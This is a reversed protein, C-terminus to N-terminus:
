VCVFQDRLVSVMSGYTVSGCRITAVVIGIGVSATESQVGLSYLCTRLLIAGLTGCRALGLGNGVVGVEDVETGALSQGVTELLLTSRTVTNDHTFHWCAALHHCSDDDAGHGSLLGCRVRVKVNGHLHCVHLESGEGVRVAGVVGRRLLEVALSLNDTVSVDDNLIQTVGERWGCGWVGGLKSEELTDVIGSITLSLKSGGDSTTQGGTVVTDARHSTRGVM